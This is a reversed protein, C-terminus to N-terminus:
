VLQITDFETYNLNDSLEVAGIYHGGVYDLEMIPSAIKRKSPNLGLDLIALVSTGKGPESQVVLNGGHALAINRALSLGLGIGDQTEVAPNAFQKFLTSLIEPPIGCGEDVLRLHLKQGKTEATLTITDGPKSAKLSNSVLNCVLRIVQQQDINGMFQRYNKSSKFLIGCSKCMGELELFLKDFLKSIDTHVLSLSRKGQLYMAGDSLNGALRLLRYLGRNIHATHDQFVPNELEELMAFLPDSSQFMEILGSRLVKGVLSLTELPVTDHQRELLFVDETEQRCVTADYVCNQLIVTINLNGLGDFNDYIELDDPAIYAAIQTGIEALPKAAQNTQVILNEQVFLIPQTFMNCTQAQITFNQSNM